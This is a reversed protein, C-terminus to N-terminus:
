EHLNHCRYFLLLIICKKGCLVNKKALARLTVATRIAWTEVFTTVGGSRNLATLTSCPFGIIAM